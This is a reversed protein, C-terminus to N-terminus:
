MCFVSKHIIKQFFTNYFRRGFNNSVWQEFTEAHQYGQLKTKLYSLIILLCEIIGLKSLVDFFEPPYKFFHGQYNCHVEPHLRILRTLLTTGSRAHGFIFFKDLPFFEKAEAVEDLSITPIPDRNLDPLSGQFFVISALKLRRM